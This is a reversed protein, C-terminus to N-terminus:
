RNWPCNNLRSKLFEKRKCATSPRKLKYTYYYAESKYNDKDLQLKRGEKSNFNHSNLFKNSIWANKTNLFM